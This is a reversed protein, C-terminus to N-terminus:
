PVNLAGPTSEGIPIKVFNLSNNDTDNGDFPRRALVVTADLAEGTTTEIFPNGGGAGYGVSDILVGTTVPGDRLGIAGANAQMQGMAAAGVWRAVVPEPVNNAGYLRVEGPQMTGLLGVLFARDNNAVGDNAARYNLTFTGVGIPVTCPNFVEVWEDAGSANSSAQIENIIPHCRIVGVSAVLTGPTVSPLSASITSTGMVVLTDVIGTPGVTAVTPDSSTWDVSNTGDATAGDSFVITARVQLRQQQRLTLNGLSLTIHDPAATSVTADIQDTFAGVIASITSAGETLGKAGGAPTVTLSSGSVLAFTAQATLDETSGDSFHGRAELQKTLGIPVILPDPEITISELVRPGADDGPGGDDGPGNGPTPDSIGLISSCGVSAGFVVAIILARV